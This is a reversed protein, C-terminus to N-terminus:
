KDLEKTTVFEYNEQQLYQIVAELADASEQHIDHMLIIGDEKANAKVYELTKAPDKHHWDMTDINWLVSTLQIEQRVSDDIAGYPPRYATPYAGIAEFIANSTRDMEAHMQAPTLKTLNKHSWSHNAIEHGQEHMMKVINPHKVANQGLVFFTAKVDYKQLIALIDVTSKDNPGDDFTLVIQKREEQEQPKPEEVPEEKFAENVLLENVAIYAGCDRIVSPLGGNLLYFPPNWNMQNWTQLPIKKVFKEYGYQESYTANGTVNEAHVPRSVESWHFVIFSGLGFLIGLIVLKRSM